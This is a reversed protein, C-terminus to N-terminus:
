LLKSSDCGEKIYNFGMQSEQRKIQAFRTVCLLYNKTCWYAYKLLNLFYM